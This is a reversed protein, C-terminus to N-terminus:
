EGAQQTFGILNGGPEWAFIEKAGYFTQRLPVAVAEAPVAAAIAQIDDVELYTIGGKVLTPCAIDDAVSAVTQYMLEVPGQELIAFGLQDGHPVTVTTAFGLREWFPLSPEIAEVMLIPTIKRFM